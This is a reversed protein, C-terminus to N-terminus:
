NIDRWRQRNGKQRSEVGLSFQKMYSSSENDADLNEEKVTGEAVTPHVLRMLKLIHGVLVDRRKTIIRCVNTNERVTEKWFRKDVVKHFM